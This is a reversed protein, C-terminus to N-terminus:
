RRSVSSRSGLCTSPSGRPPWYRSAAAAPSCRTFSRRLRVGCNDLLVLLHVHQLRSLLTEIWDRGIEEHIDLTGALTQAVLAGDSLPSLDVLRVGEPYHPLCDRALELALRTKGSGGAGVLTVLRSAVLWERLKALERQRGVFSSTQYPLNHAAGVM